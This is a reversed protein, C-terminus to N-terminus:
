FEGKDKRLDLINEPLDTPPAGSPRMIYQPHPEAEILPPAAPTPITPKPTLAPASIPPMKRLDVVEPVSATPERYQDAPRAPMPATPPAVPRPPITAPTPGPVVPPRKETIIKQLSNIIPSFIKQRIEDAILPISQPSIDITEKMEEKMDKFNVFGLIVLGVLQILMTTKEEDLQYKAAINEITISTNVSSLVNKLDQTLSEFKESIKQETLLSYDM